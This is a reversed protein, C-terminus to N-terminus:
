IVVSFQILEDLFAKAGVGAGQLQVMDILQRRSFKRDESLLDILRAHEPSLLVQALRGGGAPALAWLGRGMQFDLFDDSLSLIQAQPNLRLYEGGRPLPECSRLQHCVWELHAREFASNPFKKERLYAGLWHVPLASQEFETVVGGWGQTRLWAITRPYTEILSSSEACLSM